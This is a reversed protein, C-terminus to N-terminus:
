VNLAKWFFTGTINVVQEHCNHMKLTYIRTSNNRTNNGKMLTERSTGEINNKIDYEAPKHVKEGFM